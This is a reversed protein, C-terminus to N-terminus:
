INDYGQDASGVTMVQSKAYVFGEKILDPLEKWFEYNPIADTGDLNRHYKLFLYGFIFYAGILVFSITLLISGVSMNSGTGPRKRKCVGPCACKSTVSFTILNTIKNISPDSMAPHEATRDCVLAVQTVWTINAQKEGTYHFVVGKGDYQVNNEGRRGASFYKNKNQVCVIEEECGDGRSFFTCPNYIINDGTATTKIFKPENPNDIDWLTIVEGTDTMQCSCADKEVCEVKKGEIYTLKCAGLIIGFIMYNYSKKM